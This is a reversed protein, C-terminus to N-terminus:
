RNKLIEKPKFTEMRQQLHLCNGRFYILFEKEHGRRKGPLIGLLVSSLFLPMSRESAYVGAKTLPLKAFSDLLKIDEQSEEGLM